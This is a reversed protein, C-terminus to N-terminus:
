SYIVVKPPKPTSRTPKKVTSSQAGWLALTCAVLPTIDSTSNKRSWAWADELNRKRAVGLATNLQPQDIHRLWGEMAGDYFTGCAAKMDRSTTTTVKIRKARLQDVLNAAPSAGDIVVARIDNRECRAAVYDVLWGVGNRQEDLEVHWLGDERQGALAVSAVARDPSVDIALALRSTPPVVPAGEPPGCAEWTQVDIVRSSSSEDWMGLREMAFQQDSMTAREGAVAEHSIRTGFAPNAKRWVMPDDLDDGPDASWELYALRKEKGELGAARFRGFVEGDDQATPPTGLLWVQPNPRASMTPLIASWAPAGLIQAEDLLLCECSFGRGGGTSRAKFRIVQGSKFRISERNLAKMVGKDAVRSELTPYQEIIDVLRSFVERATDQQHASVIITKEGFLLVGALARAVILQSKGNQRPTSLAVQPTLWRGDRREGMAAEFVSEQWEDLVVGFRASLDAIDEWSNQKV